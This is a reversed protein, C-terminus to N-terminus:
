YPSMRDLTGTEPLQGCNGIYLKDDYVSVQIPICSSYDKHVVANLVAERLAERPFPYREERQIGVYST